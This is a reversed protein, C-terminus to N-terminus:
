ATKSLVSDVGMRDQKQIPHRFLWVITFGTIIGAIVGQIAVWGFYGVDELMFKMVGCNCASQVGIMWAAVNVPTWIFSLRFQRALTAYQLIGSIAGFLIGYLVISDNKGTIGTILCATAMGLASAAEWRRSTSKVERRLVSWQMKGLVWGGIGGGIIALTVYGVSSFGDMPTVLASVFFPLNLAVM